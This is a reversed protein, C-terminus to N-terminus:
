VIVSSGAISNSFTLCTLDPHTRSIYTQASISQSLIIISPVHCLQAQDSVKQPQVTNTITNNLKFYCDRKDSELAM